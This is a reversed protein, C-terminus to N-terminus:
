CPAIWSRTRLTLVPTVTILAFESFDGVLRPPTRAPCRLPDAQRAGHVVTQCPSVLVELVNM